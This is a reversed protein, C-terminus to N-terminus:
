DATHNLLRKYHYGEARAIYIWSREIAHALTLRVQGSEVPFDSQTIGASFIKKVADSRAWFMNGAPFMPKDGLEFRIGLTALFNVVADKDDWEIMHQIAPYHEPFIIGLNKDKKFETFLAQIYLESGFLHKYLYQRWDGGYEATKSKKTHIHCIYDYKDIVKSLQLIMPAVDRGRNEFPEVVVKKAKCSREFESKIFGEKKQNDTSIYCDFPYPICNINEIIENVLDTYYLHIQVAIRMHLESSAEQCCVTKETDSVIKIEGELPIDCIARSFTNINAYGYKKDPELYTGEAWENWANVFVFANDNFKGHRKHSEECVMRMWDFFSQLSFAGFASWGDARRAANDWGLMCTRYLPNDFSMHREVEIKEQIKEVLERYNYVNSIRENIETIKAGIPPIGHPPFEVEADVLDSINLSEATQGFTRCIWIEIEGIGKHMAYEKWESFTKRIDDIKWPNYVIIVPKDNVRIYRRDNMYKKIDCIFKKSDDDAYEQAMLVERDLGDWARTWNENAWCLCFNIDIEPHELLMDVPKELLRKGSFWYYYFCFGYINHRKALEAQKKLTEIDSLDYYGIDDHPERPQYHGNFRPLSKKTNTWETFGPGWWADNEPITHFQPLFFAIAKVTPMFESFDYDEQYECDFAFESEQLANACPNESLAPGSKRLANYIKVKRFTARIGTRKLSLMGKAFLRLFSIRGLLAVFDRGPKTLKWFTANAISEYMGKYLELQRQNENRMHVADRYSKIYHNLEEQTQTVLASRSRLDNEMTNIQEAQEEITQRAIESKCKLADIQKEKEAVIQNAVTLLGDKEAVVADYTSKEQIRLNNLIGIENSTHELLPVEAANEVSFVIRLSQIATDNCSCFLYPDDHTFIFLNKIRATDNGPLASVSKSIGNLYLADVKVICPRCGFDIRIKATDYGSMDFVMDNQGDSIPREMISNESFVGNNEIYVTLKESNRIDQLQKKIEVKETNKRYYDTKICTFIFQYVTGFEKRKLLEGTAAPLTAYNNSMETEEPFRYIGNEEVVSFGLRALMEKLSYYTFFRLHTDDLIGIPGYTFRNNLLDIIVANHAINPVSMLVRGDEKLFESAKRLAAEPNILHELVDAFLIYDFKRNRIKKTWENAEIDGLYGDDAYRIARHYSSENLEVIFIACDLTEKMYRTMAGDAPGFELVDSGSRILRLLASHSNDSVMNLGFDYKSM